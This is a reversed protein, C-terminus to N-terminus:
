AETKTFYEELRRGQRLTVFVTIITIVISSAIIATLEIWYNMPVPWVELLLIESAHLAVERMFVGVVLGVISWLMRSDRVFYLYVSLGGIFVTFSIFILDVAYKLAYGVVLSIQPLWTEFSGVNELLIGNTQYLALGLIILSTSTTFLRVLNLPSPYIYEVVVKDISFGKIILLAGVVVLLVVSPNVVEVFQWLLGMILLLIGPAGFIWRSYYPDEVAKRLYRSLLMWSEEISESHRVVIRKISLIPIQSQIIPIVAEDSFGDSVLVVSDAPFADLVALLQDRIAKDATIGGQSSGVITAVEYDSLNLDPSLGDYFQVAGFIANADSEEPDSLALQTAADLNKTRGIIPTTVKTNNGIDNDRDVCLVLIKEKKESM